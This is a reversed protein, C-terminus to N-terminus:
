GRFRALVMSTNHGGFGFSNNIAYDFKVEQAVNAVFNLDFGEDPNELNITPPLVGEVIAKVTAVTEIAGAGGLTHGTVGKTSSMAINAAHVGFLSKVALVEAKDGLPTSTGHANIYKIDTTNLEADKLAIEMAKRAGRGQDDPAAIHTADGTVGFGVLEAYIRAGRAKAHELEEMVIIGAGEALVFGDRDRDFPRSARTPDDNRTSLAKMAAFSGVCLPTVAGESGGAVMVDADGRQIIHFAAGIAHSGTACATATAINAGKLGFRISVNGALANVMLKPVVFPSVSRPGRDFLKRLGVEITDIGGIGSGIAVGYRYPDGQSFDMGSDAVAEEAACMGFVSFRDMRQISKPDIRKEPQLNRVEGAFTVSWEPTPTFLTIPGIGSKGEILANWFEPVTNGVDTVTGLGTIVVRRLTITRM